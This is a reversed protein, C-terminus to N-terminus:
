KKKNKFFVVYGGYTIAIIIGGVTIWKIAQELITKDEEIDLNEDDTNSEDMVNIGYTYSNSVGNMNKVTFGLTYLGPTGINDSYTDVDYTVIADKNAAVQGTKALLEVIQTRTLTAGPTLNVTVGNTIWWNAGQDDIVKVTITWYGINGANDKASLRIEYTGVKNGNGTFTDSDVTIKTINGDIEDNVSVEKLIEDLTMLKTYSKIVEKTGAFVPAVNDYVKIPKTFTTTNDSNDKAEFVVNWTGLKGKNSTYGDTKLKIDANTLSDYNDTVKLTKRFNEINYTEKYGIQVVDSNGTIVPKTIDVVNVYFTFDSRNDSSDIVFIKVEHKGLVRKNPTYNDTEIQILHSIDGDIDDIAKIFDIFYQIDKSEEVSTVFNEQGDIAPRDDENMVEFMIAVNKSGLITEQNTSNLAVLNDGNAKITYNQINEIVMKPEFSAQPRSSHNEAVFLRVENNTDLRVGGTLSTEFFDDSGTMNAYTQIRLKKNFISIEVESYESNDFTLTKRISEEVDIFPLKFTHDSLTNLLISESNYAVIPSDNNVVYFSTSISLLILISMLSIKKITRM